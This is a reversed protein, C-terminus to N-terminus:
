PRSSGCPASAARPTKLSPPDPRLLRLVVRWHWGRACRKWSPVPSIRGLRPQLASPPRRTEHALLARPARLVRQATTSTPPSHSWSAAALATWYLNPRRLHAHTATSILDGVRVGPGGCERFGARLIVSVDPLARPLRRCSSGSRSSVQQRPTEPHAPMARSEPFEASASLPLDCRTERAIADRGGANEGVVARTHRYRRAVLRLPRGDAAPSLDSAPLAPTDAIACGSRATATPCTARSM